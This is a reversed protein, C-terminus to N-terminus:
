NHKIEKLQEPSSVVSSTNYTRMYKLNLTIIFKKKLHPECCNTDSKSM